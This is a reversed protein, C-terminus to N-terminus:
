PHATDGAPSYARRECRCDGGGTSPPGSSPYVCEVISSKPVGRVGVGSATDTYQMSAASIGALRSQVEGAREAAAAAQMQLDRVQSEVQKLAKGPAAVSTSMAVVSRPSPREWRSRQEACSRGHGVPGM